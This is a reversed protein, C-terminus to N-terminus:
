AAAWAALGAALPQLVALPGFVQLEYDLFSLVGGEALALRWVLVEAVGIAVLALVVAISRRRGRAVASGGGWRAGLGTVLGAVLAVAVLPEALALPSALIVLIAAGIAAPVIAGVAARPASGSPPWEAAGDAAVASASAAAAYRESPARDLVRRAAAPVVEGPRGPPGGPPPVIPQDTEGSAKPEPENREM